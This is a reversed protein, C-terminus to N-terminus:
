KSVKAPDLIVMMTGINCFPQLIYQDFAIILPM